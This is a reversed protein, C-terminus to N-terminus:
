GALTQVQSLYECMQRGYNKCTFQPVTQWVDKFPFFQKPSFKYAREVLDAVQKPTADMPFIFGNYGHKIYERANGTDSVVPIINAHMAEILANPGGGELKSTSLFVTCRAYHEPYDKYDVHGNGWGEGLYVFEHHPILKMVDFTLQPNKRGGEYNKGCVLVCGDPTREHPKCVENDGGEPIYTLLEERVGAKKLVEVGEASECVVRECRNFLDAEVPFSEHTFLCVVPRQTLFFHPLMTYHTVFYTDALPILSPYYRVFAGPTEKAIEKGMRDLIGGKNREHVVICVSM